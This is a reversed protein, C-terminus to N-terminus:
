QQDRRTPDSFQEGRPVLSWAIGDLIDHESVLVSAVPARRLLRDLIIGGAGIVDARGPHMYPLARRQEVDMALFRHTISQVSAVDIVSHHVLDREYARLGLAGAAVTTVTGAVGIVSQAASIDVTTSDLAAEVDAVVAAIEDATAPDHHFHREALRVSGIDLSQASTFGDVTGLILETSGGGIDVVLHPAPVAGPVTRVAGDFSLAAEEDGAIVEPEVGVLHRVAATFDDANEADRAASTACFRVKEPQHREIMAAYDTLADLVRRMAAEGIRRTRDIGEGLRVVRMERVVEHASGTAPDLDAILLRLSNTGCDFAAVRTM